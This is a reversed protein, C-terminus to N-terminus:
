FWNCVPLDFQGLHVDNNKPAPPPIQVGLATSIDGTFDEKKKLCHM